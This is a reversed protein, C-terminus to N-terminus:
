RKGEPQRLEDAPYPTRKTEAILRHHFDNLVLASQAHRDVIAAVAPPLGERPAEGALWDRLFAQHLAADRLDAPLLHHRLLHATTHHHDYSLHDSLFAVEAATLDFRSSSALGFDAFYLLRGDTLVNHFHADFHVLGNASMFATCRTLAQEAWAYPAPEAFGNRHDSLWAALTHPIHELFLLLSLSSRGIAELRERVAASGEWHAVAADVGGLADAFGVPPSDPVVRWHYLLPFGAFADGLVWCTTMTHAALERWAGFGASGIGYQYFTPLRFLNATSRFHEPRAELETLTVRKVFVQTGDLDVEASRGGLGSGRPAATTVLDIIQREGLASLRASVTRYAALRAAYPSDPRCPQQINM